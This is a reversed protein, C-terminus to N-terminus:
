DTNDIVYNNYGLHYFRNKSVQMNKLDTKVHEVKFKSLGYVTMNFFTMDALGFNKKMPPIKMPDPIPAGPFGLPNPTQYHRLVKRIQESLKDRVVDVPTTNNLTIETVSSDVTTPEEVEPTTASAEETETSPKALETTTTQVMAETTSETSLINITEAPSGTMTMTTQDDTIVFTTSEINPETSLVTTIEEQGNEALPLGVAIFSYHGYLKRNKYYM